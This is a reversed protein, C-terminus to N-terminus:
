VSQHCLLPRLAGLGGAPDGRRVGGSGVDGAGGCMGQRKYVDLHTYSVALYDYWSAIRKLEEWDKGDVM